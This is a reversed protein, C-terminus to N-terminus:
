RFIELGFNSFCFKSKAVDTYIFCLDEQEVFLKLLNIYGSPDEAMKMDSNLKVEIELKSFSKDTFYEVPTM